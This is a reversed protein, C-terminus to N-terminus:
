STEEDLRAMTPPAAWDDRRKKVIGEAHQNCWYSYYLFHGNERQGAHVTQKWVAAQACVGGIRGECARM